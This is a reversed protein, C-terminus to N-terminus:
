AKIQCHHRRPSWSRRHPEKTSPMQQLVGGDRPEPDCGHITIVTAKAGHVRLHQQAKSMSFIFSPSSLSLLLFHPFFFLFVFPLQLHRLCFVASLLYILLILRNKIAARTSTCIIHINNFYNDSTYYFILVFIVPIFNVGKM